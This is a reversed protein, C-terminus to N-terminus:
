CFYFLFFVKQRAAIFIKYLARKEGFWSVKFNTYKFDIYTAEKKIKKTGFMYKMKERWHMQFHLDIRKLKYMKGTFLHM